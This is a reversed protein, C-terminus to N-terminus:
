RAPASRPGLRHSAADTQELVRRALPDSPADALVRLAHERASRTRGVALYAQALKRQTECCEPQLRLSVELEVIARELQELLLCALGLKFHADANGLDLDVAHEAHELGAQLEGQSILLGAWRAHAVALVQRALPAGGRDNVCSCAILALVRLWFALV